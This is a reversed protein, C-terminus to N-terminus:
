SSLAELLEFESVRRVMKSREQMLSRQMKRDKNGEVSHAHKALDLQTALESRKAMLTHLHQIYFSTFMAGINSQSTSVEARALNDELERLEVDLKAVHAAAQNKIASQAKAIRSLKKVKKYM